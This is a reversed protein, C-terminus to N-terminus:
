TKPGSNAKKLEELVALLTENLQDLQRQIAYFHGTYVQSM